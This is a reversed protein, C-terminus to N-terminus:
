PFSIPVRIRDILHHWKWHGQIFGLGIKLTECNKSASYIVFPWISPSLFGCGLKRIACSEIVKLSKLALNWPWSIIWRWIVRSITLRTYDIWRNRKWHGQTVRLRSKLTVPYNPTFARSTNHVCIVCPRNAIALNKNNDRTMMSVRSISIVIRDTQRDTRGDIRGNREPIRHFRSLM